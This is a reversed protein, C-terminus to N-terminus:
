AKYREDDFGDKGEREARAIQRGLKALESRLRDVSKIERELADEARILNSERARQSTKHFELTLKM